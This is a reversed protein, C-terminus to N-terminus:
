AWGYRFGLGLRVGVQAPVVREGSASSAGCERVERTLSPNLKGGRVGVALDCPSPLLPRPTRDGVHLSSRGRGRAPGRWNLGAKPPLM